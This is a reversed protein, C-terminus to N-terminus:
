EIRKKLQDLEKKLEKIAENQVAIISTYNVTLLGDNEKVVEPLIEKVQQAIFGYDSKSNRKWDFQVGELSMVKNLSSPIPIINDKLTIDSYTFWATSTAGTANVEFTNNNSSNSVNFRGTGNRVTTQYDDVNLTNFGSMESTIGLGGMMNSISAYSGDVSLSNPLSTNVRVQLRRNSNSIETTTDSVYLRQQYMLNSVSFTDTNFMTGMGTIYAVMETYGGPANWKNLIFQGMDNTVTFGYKSVDLERYFPAYVGTNFSLKYVTGDFTETLYDFGGIPMGNILLDMGNFGFTSGMVTVQFSSDSVQLTNQATSSNVVNFYGMSNYITTAGPGFMAIPTSYFMIEDYQYFVFNGYRNTASFGNRSVELEKSSSMTGTNYTLWNVTPDGPNYGDTLYDFGGGIPMANVLLDTGNFSLIGGNVTVQFSTDVTVQFSTSSVQLSNM